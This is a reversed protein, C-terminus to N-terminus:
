KFVWRIGAMPGKLTGTFYQDSSEATKFHFLKYGGFIELQSYRATVSVELNGIDAHHPFGFGWARAEFFLHKNPIYEPIIGFAPYFINRGGTGPTFNPDADLPADITTSINTYNFAYLTRVRFKSDEPPSPWTLYSWALQANRLRYTTSMLTGQPFNAGFLGLPIAAIATGSGNAQFYSLELHDFKGAPLSVSVGPSAGSFDPLRFVENLPFPAIKGPLLHAPGRPLWGFVAVPQGADPDDPAIDPPAATPAPTQQQTPAPAQPAPQDQAFAAVGLGSLGFFIAFPVLPLGLAGSFGLNIRTRNTLLRNSLLRSSLGGGRGPELPPM